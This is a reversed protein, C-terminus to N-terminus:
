FILELTAFSSRGGPARFKVTVDNTYVRVPQEMVLPGLKPRVLAFSPSIVEVPSRMEDEARTGARGRSSLVSPLANYNDFNYNDFELPSEFSPDLNSIDIAAPGAPAPGQARPKADIGTALADGAGVMCVGAAAVAFVRCLANPRAIGKGDISRSPNPRSAAHM